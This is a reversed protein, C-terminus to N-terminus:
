TSPLGNEVWIHGLLCRLSPRPPSVGEETLLLLWHGADERGLESWTFISFPFNSSIFISQPCYLNIKPLLSPNHAICFSQTWYLHIKPLLFHLQFNILVMKKASLGESGLPTMPKKYDPRGRYWWVFPKQFIPMCLFVCGMRIYNSNQIQICTLKVKWSSRLLVRPSLRLGLYPRAPLFLRQYLYIHYLYIQSYINSRMIRM